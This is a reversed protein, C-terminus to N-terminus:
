KRLYVVEGNVITMINRTTLIEAEPITMIDKDLITFDAWKGVTVSGRENEEFAGYAPWITFARLAQERTM